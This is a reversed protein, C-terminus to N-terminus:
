RVVETAAATGQGGPHGSLISYQVTRCAHGTQPMPKWSDSTEPGGKHSQRRLRDIGIKVDGPLDPQEAGARLVIVQESGAWDM